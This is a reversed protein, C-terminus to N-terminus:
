SDIMPLKLIQEIETASPIMGGWSWGASDFRWTGRKKKFVLNVTKYASWESWKDASEYPYYINRVADARLVMSGKWEVGNLRDVVTLTDETISYSLQKIQFYQNTSHFANRKSFWEGSAYLSARAEIFKKAEAAAETNLDVSASSVSALVLDCHISCILILQVAMLGPRRWWRRGFKPSGLQNLNRTFRSWASM